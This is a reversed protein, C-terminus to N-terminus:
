NKLNEVSFMPFLPNGTARNYVAIGAGAPDWWRPKCAVNGGSIMGGTVKVFAVMTGAAGTAIDTTDQLDTGGISASYYGGDTSLTLAIKFTVKLINNTAAAISLLGNGNTGGTSLNWLASSGTVDVPTTSTTSFNNGSQDGTAYVVPIATLGGGVQVWTGPTGAVTCVFVTGDTNVVGDRVEWTGSAPAGSANGGIWRIPLTAGTGGNVELRPASVQGTFDQDGAASLDAANTVQAATYDGSTAFVAGTRTFVSSVAGTGNSAATIRGKADVTLNTNTYAAPTVTTAVLTPNPYTGTLDGGAPGSPAGGSLFANQWTGPTGATTCLWIGPTTFDVTWEGVTFTGTTPHNGDFRGRFKNFVPSAQGPVPGTPYVSDSWNVPM